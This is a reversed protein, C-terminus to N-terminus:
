KWRIKVGKSSRLRKITLIILLFMSLYLVVHHIWLDRFNYGLVEDPLVYLGFLYISEGAHLTRYGFFTNRRLIVNVESTVGVQEETGDLMQETENLGPDIEVETLARTVTPYVLLVIVLWVIAIDTKRTGKSTDENKYNDFSYSGKSM